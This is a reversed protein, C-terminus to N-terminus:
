DKIALLPAKGDVFLRKVTFAMMGIDRGKPDWSHAVNQACHNMQTVHWVLPTMNKAKIPEAAFYQHSSPSSRYCFIVDQIASKLGSLTM